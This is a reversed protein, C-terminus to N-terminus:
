RFDTFRVEERKTFEVNVKSPTGDKLFSDRDWRPWVTVASSLNLNIIKRHRLNPGAWHTFDNAFDTLQTSGVKFAGKDPYDDHYRTMFPGVPKCDLGLIYIREADLIDALNLAGIGSNSSYSLGESLSKAWFKQGWPKIRSIIHIDPDAELARVGLDDDLSHFVKLGKFKRLEKGFHEVFQLDESFWIDAHPVDKFARNVVIIQNRKALLSWDFDRLSPGGLVIFSERGQWAGDKLDSAKM